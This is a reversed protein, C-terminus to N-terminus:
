SIVINLLLIAPLAFYLASVVHIWLGAENSLSKNVWQGFTNVAYTMWIVQVIALPLLLIERSRGLYVLGFVVFAAYAFMTVVGLPPYWRALRALGIVGLAIGLVSFQEIVFQGLEIWRIAERWGWIDIVPTPTLIYARALLVLGACVTVIMALWFWVPLRAYSLFLALLIAPAFLVVLPDNITGITFFALFAAYEGGPPAGLDRIVIDASPISGIEGRGAISDIELTITEDGEAELDRIPTITTTAHTSGETVVVETGALDFDSGLRATGSVVLAITVAGTVPESLELAVDVPARDDGEDVEEAAASISVSAVAEVTISFTLPASDPVAADSDTATYTYLIAPQAATPTGSLLRTEADFTLGAPLDPSIAYTLEGDGGTAAPLTEGDIARGRDYSKDAISIAGFTPELDRRDGGCGAVALVLAVVVLVAAFPSGGTVSSRYM